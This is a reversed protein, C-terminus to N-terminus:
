APALGRGITASRTGLARSLNRALPNDRCADLFFIRIKAEREMVSQVLDFRITEFDLASATALEADVPVLFNVGGAQLGHGAYFFAAVDAEALAIAFERLKKEFATKDLDNGEIVNFNLKRLALAMDKADHSPNVLTGANAYRSNGVVLAVRKEAAATGQLVILILSIAMVRLHMRAGVFM